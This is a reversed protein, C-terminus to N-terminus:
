RLTIMTIMTTKVDDTHISMMELDACDTSAQSSGLSDDDTSASPESGISVNDDSNYVSPDDQGQFHDQQLESDPLGKNTTEVDLPIDAGLINDIYKYSKNSAHSDADSKPTLFVLITLNKDEDPIQVGALQHYNVRMKDICNIFDDSM